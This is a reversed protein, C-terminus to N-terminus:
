RPHILTLAIPERRILCHYLFCKCPLGFQILLTCELKCTDNEIDPCPRDSNELEEALKGAAIWERLLLNLAEHTIKRKIEKFAPKDNVLFHANRRQRNIQVKRALHISMIEMIFAVYVVFTESIEDIAAAAFKKKIM